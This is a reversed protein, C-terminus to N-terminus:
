TCTTCRRRLDLGLTLKRNLPLERMKQVVRGFADYIVVAANEGPQGKIM